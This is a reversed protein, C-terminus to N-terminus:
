PQLSTVKAHLREMLYPFGGTHLLRAFQVRYNSFLSAGGFNIDVVRWREGPSRRMTYEVGTRDGDKAVIFTRVTARDGDVVDDAVVIRQGDWEDLRRLYARDILDVFLAQFRVREEPSREAWERGLTRRSAEEFDFMEDVIARVAHRRDVAERARDAVVAIVRDAQRQLEAGADGARAPAAALPVALMTLVALVHGPRM